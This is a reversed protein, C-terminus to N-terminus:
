TIFNFNIRGETIHKMNFRVKQNATRKLVPRIKNKHWPEFAQIPRHSQHARGLKTMTHFTVDSVTTSIGVLFLCWRMVPRVTNLFNPIVHITKVQLWNTIRVKCMTTDRHAWEFM